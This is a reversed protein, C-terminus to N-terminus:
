ILPIVNVMENNSIDILKCKVVKDILNKSWLAKVRVYNDTYGFIYGDNNKSEFLVPRIIKLNKKYFINKKKSSLARLFKSRQSKITKSVKNTLKISETNDRESYSFVHLYSIDLDSLFNFTQMFDEDSEGPFGVIVDVGICCDPMLEKIKKIRSSYLSTLYRRKMLNLIKDSGSQLPIHFHNVFIKSKSVFSIIDDTLLNPEISSIRVRDLMKVKNFEKILKFFNTERENSNPDYIGYDGINVGTLVIEKIGNGVLYEANSILDEIKGSRSKGRALPITCYTCKYDCGDQVKLFSRTRDGISFSNKFFNVSNCELKCLVQAM